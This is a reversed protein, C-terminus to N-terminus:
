KWLGCFRGNKGGTGTATDPDCWLLGPQDFQQRQFDAFKLFQAHGDFSTVNCGSVHRQSPGETDNPYSSADNFVWAPIYPPNDSPEWTAFAMPNMESLRHTRSAPPRIYYGMVGGNMVYSSLKERRKPFYPTNTRDLPCWYIKVTNLYPWLLGGAYVAEAPNSPPPPKDNVPTYLWGPFHNGWNPWPLCDRNDQTYMQLALAIQKTQSLCQTQVAKMKARQMAPLALAALIGVIAIVVLMEVLTFARVSKPATIM